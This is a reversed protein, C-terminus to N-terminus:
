TSVNLLIHSATSVIQLQSM